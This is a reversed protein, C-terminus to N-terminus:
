MAAFKDNKEYFFSKKGSKKVLQSFFNFCHCMCRLYPEWSTEPVKNIIYNFYM